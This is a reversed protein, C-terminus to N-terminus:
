IKCTLTRPKKFESTTERFNAKPTSQSPKSESNSNKDGNLMVCNKKHKLYSAELFRRGCNPCQVM